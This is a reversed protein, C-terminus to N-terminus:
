YNHIMVKTLLDLPADELIQELDKKYRFHDAMDDLDKSNLAEL